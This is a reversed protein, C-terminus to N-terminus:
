QPLKWGFRQAATTATANDGGYVDLFIRATAADIANGNGRPLFDRPLGQRQAEDAATVYLDHRAQQLIAGYSQMQKADILEGSGNLTLKSLRAAMSQYINRAGIHEGVIQSNIRFGRGKLPASSIGVANFLGVVSEAGTMKGAAADALITQMQDYSRELQVADKVYDTGFKDYRKDREAPKMPPLRQGLEDIGAEVNEQAPGSGAAPAAGGAGGMQFRALEGQAQHEGAEARLNATQANEMAPNHAAADANGKQILVLADKYKMSPPLPTSQWTGPEQGEMTMKGPVYNLYTPLADPSFVASLPLEMVDRQVLAARVGQYTWNGDADQALNPVTAVQAGAHAGTIQSILEPNKNEYAIVADMNPFVGLDRNRPDAGLMNEFTNFSEVAENGAKAKAQSLQFGLLANQKTYYAIQVQRVQDESAQQTAAQKNQFNKQLRQREREDQGMRAETEGEFGAGIGTAIGGGPRLPAESGSALGTLAGALIRRAWSGPTMKVPQETINGQADMAPATQQGGLATLAKRFFNGVRSGQAAPAAPGGGSPLLAPSPPASTGPTPLAEPPAGASTGGALAQEAASPAAADQEDTGTNLGALAM